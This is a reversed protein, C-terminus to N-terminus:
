CPSTGLDFIDRPDNEHGELFNKGPFDRPHRDDWPHGSGLCLQSVYRHNEEVIKGHLKSGLSPPEQGPESKSHPRLHTM